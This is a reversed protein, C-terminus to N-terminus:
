QGGKHFLRERRWEGASWLVALSIPNDIVIWAVNIFDFHWLKRFPSPKYCIFGWILWYLCTHAPPSLEACCPGVILPVLLILPLFRCMPQVSFWRWVYLHLFKLWLVFRARTKFASGSKDQQQHKLASQTQTLLTSVRVVYSSIFMLDVVGTSEDGNKLM